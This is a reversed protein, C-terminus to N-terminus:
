VPFRSALENAPKIAAATNAPSSPFCPIDEAENRSTSESQCNSLSQLSPLPKKQDLTDNCDANCDEGKERKGVCRELGAPKSLGLALKRM